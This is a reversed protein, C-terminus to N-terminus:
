NDDELFVLWTNLDEGAGESYFEIEWQGPGIPMGVDNGFADDIGVYGILWEVPCRDPDHEKRCFDICEKPHRISYAMDIEEFNEILREAEEDSGLFDYEAELIHHPGECARMSLLALEQHELYQHEHEQHEEETVITWTM